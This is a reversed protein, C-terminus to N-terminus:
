SRDKLCWKKLEILPINQMGKKQTVIGTYSIQVIIETGERKM